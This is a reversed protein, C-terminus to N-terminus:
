SASISNCIATIRSRELYIHICQVCPLAGILHLVVSATYHWNCLSNLKYISVLCTQKHCSYQNWWIDTVGTWPTPQWSATTLQEHLRSLIATSPARPEHTPHTWRLPTQSEHNCLDPRLGPMICSEQDRRQHHNIPLPQQLWQNSEKCQRNPEMGLMRPYVSLQAGTFTQYLFTFCKHFTWFYIFLTFFTVSIVYNQLRGKKSTFNQFRIWKNIISCYFCFDSNLPVTRLNKSKNNLHLQFWYYTLALFSCIFSDRKKQM